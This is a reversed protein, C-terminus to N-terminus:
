FWSAGVDIIDGPKVPLYLKVRKLKEPKLEGSVIRSLSIKGKSARLTFGGALVVAKEVTLGRRFEYEGPKQVEGHLYVYSTSEDGVGLEEEVSIIDGSFVEIQSEASLSEYVTVGDRLISVGSVKASNKTGGALSIAKVVTLGETFPFDGTSAVAGRIFIPRYGDITVSLKPNKVYGGALKAAVVQEIEDTTKGQVDTSGILPFSVSGSQPIRVNSASLEPEGFVLLSITDGPALRHRQELVQHEIVESISAEAITSETLVASPAKRITDPSAPEVLTWTGTPQDGMPQAPSKQRAPEEGRLAFTWDAPSYIKLFGNARALVKSTYGKLVVGLIAAQKSPKVRANLRNARVTVQGNDFDVYNASVWVPVLAQSFRVLQWENQTDLLVRQSDHPIAGLQLKSNASYVKLQPEANASNGWVVQLFMAFWLVRMIHSMTKVAMLPM